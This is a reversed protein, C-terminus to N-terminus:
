VSGTWQHSARGVSERETMRSSILGFQSHGIQYYIKLPGPWVLPSKYILLVSTTVNYYISLVPLYFHCPSLQFCSIPVRQPHM